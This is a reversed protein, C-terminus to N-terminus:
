QMIKLLEEDAPPTSSLAAIADFDNLVDPSPMSAVQSVTSLSQAWEARRASQLHHYSFLAAAFVVAAFGAKPLWSTWWRVPPRVDNELRVESSAEREVRALVRATFNSPVPVNPLAALM